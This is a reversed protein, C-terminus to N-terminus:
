IYSIYLCMSICIVLNSGIEILFCQYWLTRISNSHQRSPLLVVKWKFFLDTMIYSNCKVLCAMEAKNILCDNVLVKWIKQRFLFHWREIKKNRKNFLKWKTLCDWLHTRPYIQKLKKHTLTHKYPLIQKHKKTNM